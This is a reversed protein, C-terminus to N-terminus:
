GGGVRHGVVLHGELANPIMDRVSASRGARHRPGRALPGVLASIAQVAARACWFACAATASGLNTNLSKAVRARANSVSRSM